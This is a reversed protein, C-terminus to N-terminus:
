FIAAGGVWEVAVGEWEVPRVLGRLLGWGGVGCGWGGM